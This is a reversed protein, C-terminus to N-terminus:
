KGVCFTSYIRELMREVLPGCGEGIIRGDALRLERAVLEPECLVENEISKQAIRRAHQLHTCVDSLTRYDAPPSGTGSVLDLRDALQERLADIGVGTIACVQVFDGLQGAIDSWAKPPSLDAKSLVILRRSPDITALTAREIEQWPQSRDHVWAVIDATAAVREAALHAALELEDRRAHLGACDQLVVPRGRFTIEVSLVDRTTGIVPSVIARAYGALTNFLTSKGANPLGALAIHPYAHTMRAHTPPRLLELRALIADIRTCVDAPTIFHIDEEDVFDIGAEILAILDTLDSAVHALNQRDEGSIMRRARRAAARSDAHILGLVGSVADADLRGNLYARATFEGPLARRAGREILRACLSRVGALNGITHIEVAQQGTYSRPAHFWLWRAPLTLNAAIDVCGATTHNRRDAPPVGGVGAALVFADPGSLRVIAMDTPAWGTAVAIITDDLSPFLM